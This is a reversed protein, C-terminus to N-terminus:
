FRKQWVGNSLQWVSQNDLVLLNDKDITSIEYNEDKNQTVNNTVNNNEENNTMNTENNYTFGDPDNYLRNIVLFSALFLSIVIFIIIIIKNQKM